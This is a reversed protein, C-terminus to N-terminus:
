LSPNAATPRPALVSRDYFGLSNEYDMDFGLRSRMADPDDDASCTPIGLSM